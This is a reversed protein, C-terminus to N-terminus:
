YSYNSLQIVIFIKIVIRSSIRLLNIDHCFLLFRFSIILKITFLLVVNNYEFVIIEFLYILPRLGNTKFYIPIYEVM